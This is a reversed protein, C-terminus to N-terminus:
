GARAPERAVLPFPVRIPNQWFVFSCGPCVLRDLGHVARRDLGAGCKPCFSFERPM